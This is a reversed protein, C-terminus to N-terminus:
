PVAQDVVPIDQIVLFDTELVDNLNGLFVGVPSKAARCGQEFERSGALTDAVEPRHLLLLEVKSSLGDDEVM